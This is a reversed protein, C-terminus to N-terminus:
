KATIKIKNNNEEILITIVAKWILPNKVKFIYSKNRNELSIEFYDLQPNISIIKELPINKNENSGDFVLRKNTLILLGQDIQKIETHSTSKGKYNGIYVGKAVRFGIGRGERVSYTKPEFLITKEELYASEGPKLFISTKIKQLGNNKKIEDTFQDLENLLKEQQDKIKDRFISRLFNLM